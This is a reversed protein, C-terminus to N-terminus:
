KLTKIKMQYMANVEMIEEYYARSLRNSVASQTIGLLKGMEEQSKDKNQLAIKVAEAANVSWSDMAILSLKLYLNMEADFLEDGSKISLNQKEQKLLEFKEGSNSFATGNSETIKETSYSIDGLGLAMRVNVNNASKLATKISLAFLLAKEPKKLLVQFSDGRFIEWSKPSKGAKNLEHKLVKLWTDPKHKKSNIIDGTIICVM